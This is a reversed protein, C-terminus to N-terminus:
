QTPLQSQAAARTQAFRRAVIDYLAADGRRLYDKKTRRYAFRQDRTMLQPAPYGLIRRIRQAAKARM